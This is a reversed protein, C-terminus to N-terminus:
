WNWVALYFNASGNTEDTSLYKRLCLSISVAFGYSRLIESLNLFAFDLTSDVPLNRTVNLTYVSVFCSAREDVQKGINGRAAIFQKESVVIRYDYECLHVEYREDFTYNGKPFAGLSRSTFCYSTLWKTVLSTIVNNRATRWPYPLSESNRPIWRLRRSRSYRIPFTWFVFISPFGLCM